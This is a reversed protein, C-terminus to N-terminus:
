HVTVLYREWPGGTKRNAILQPPNMLNFDNSVIKFNARAKLVVRGDPRELWMFSEWWGLSTRDAILFDSGANEAVVYKGNVQSRLGVWRPHPGAVVEFKEATGIAAASARLPDAGGNVASVWLSNTISKMSVTEGVPPNLTAPWTGYDAPWIAWAQNLPTKYKSNDYVDPVRLFTFWSTFRDEYLITQDVSQRYVNPDIFETQVVPIGNAVVTNLTAETQATSAYGHFAVAANSWDVGSGLAQVDQMVGSGSKFVPYSFFLVPTNPAHSRILNYMDREFHIVHSPVPQSQQTTFNHYPENQIEYLVHTRNAYRPAYLDWFDTAFTRDYKGNKTPGNGITLVLYLGDQDTWNVLTDIASLCYGPPLVEDPDFSEGYKPDFTEGYVHLANFGYSRLDSVQSRSPLRCSGTAPNWNIDTSWRPGRLLSDTDSVFTAYTTGIFQPHVEVSPRGRAAFAASPLVVLLLLILFASSLRCTRRIPM